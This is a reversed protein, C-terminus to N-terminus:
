CLPYFPFDQHWTVAGREGPPKVNIGSDRYVVDPGLVDSALDALRSEMAVAWFEPDQDPPRKIRYVCPTEANHEPALSFWRNSCTLTRSREIAREYADRMRQLWTDELIDRCLAYGQEFYRERDAQALVKPPRSLVAEPKM